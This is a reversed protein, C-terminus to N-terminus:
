SSIGSKLKAPMLPHDPLAIFGTQNSPTDPIISLCTLAQKRRIPTSHLIKQIQHILNEESWLLLLIDTM